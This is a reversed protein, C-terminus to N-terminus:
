RLFPILAAVERRYADYTAMATGNLIGIAGLAVGAWAIAPM